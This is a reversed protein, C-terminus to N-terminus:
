QFSPAEDRSVAAVLASCRQENAEEDSCRWLHGRGGIASFDSNSTTTAAEDDKDDLQM